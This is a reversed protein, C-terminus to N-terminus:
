ALRPPREILFPHLQLRIVDDRPRPRRSLAAVAGAGAAVLVAVCWMVVSVGTACEDCGPMAGMGVVLPLGTVLLLVVAAVVLPKKVVAM